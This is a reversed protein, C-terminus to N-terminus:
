TAACGCRSPKPRLSDPQRLRPTFAPWASQMESVDAKTVARGSRFADLCPGEQQHVEFLEVLEAAHSSAAMVELGGRQDALMIGGADADVLAV